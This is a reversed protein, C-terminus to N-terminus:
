TISSGSHSGRGDTPRAAGDLGLKKLFMKYRPDDRVGDMFEDTQIYMTDLEGKSYARELSEFGKDNDGLFFYLDAIFRMATFTEGVHAGLVSVARRVGERDAELCALSAKVAADVFPFAQRALDAAAEGESKAHTMDGLKGYLWALEFHSAPSGPNLEALRKALDLAPRYDRRAEYYIIHVLNIIQSFPDLEAAREIHRRAEEWRMEAILLQAYWQHVSSYSPKLDIATRFEGEAGRMDHEGLLVLGMTAHAEPLGPDLKLAKSAMEMAARKNEQPDVAWNVAMVYHCDGLGAYGLAFNPDEEVAQRFYGIATKVDDLGRKNWSFRGKLYLTYASANVQPSQDIAVREGLVRVRLADAVLRAVDSQIALIDKLDRDYSEAWLHRDREADVMQVTVRVKTGAMRVSGELVTGVKLEKSITSLSKPNKKYQMVSTRSIVELERVKSLTSTLEETMGDAFYEDQPDPSMNAFPLVALRRSRMEPQPAETRRASTEVRYVDVPITVNKLESSGLRTFQFPVKNRVQDFVQQSICIGGGEALPEIRSAINVADGYVDGGEHVVDGVHIGIRVQLAPEEARLRALSEDLEVACETASLASPFEVLFADGMTKIEKGEHRSLIPRVVGRHKRLIALAHAEDSQAMATYGAIDTFM